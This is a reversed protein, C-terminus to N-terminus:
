QDQVSRDQAGVVASAVDVLRYWLPAYSRSDPGWNTETTFHSSVVGDVVINGSLTHVNYRGQRTVADVSAVTVPTAPNAETAVFM